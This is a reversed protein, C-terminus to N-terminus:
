LLRAHGVLGEGKRQRSAINNDAQTGIQRRQMDLADGLEGAFTKVVADHKVAHDRAEHRLAAIRRAGAHAAARQGVKGGFEVRLRVDAANARHRPRLVRVARVALEEDAEVVRAEEVILVGGPAFHDFAHFIDVRQGLALRRAFGALDYFRRNASRFIGAEAPIKKAIGRYVREAARVRRWALGRGSGLRQAVM